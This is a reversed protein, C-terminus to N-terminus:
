KIPVFVVCVPSNVQVSRSTPTLRGSKSDVRFIRIDNSDQNEAFLWNGTPDLTFHRPEKGGTRVRDVLSLKGSKADIAFIAISDDGRNSAYLFKGATDTTIEATSNEGKFDQPLTSIPQLEAMRGSSDDFAYVTVTSSLENVLYVFKGNPALAFHRPGSGPAVKVAPPNAPSLAGTNADFRYVLLEDLGLDAVLVFKNNATAQIEHAHPGAQRDKNASSGTHQVFATRTGLTGDKQIPFVAISGGDYNAVLLYEGSRDVSLHAPGPGLSSVQQLPALKGSSRDISFTTVAGAQGGNFNNIENLAYLFKDDTAVALFSPNDTTAALGVDGLEGSSPDFRYAYIGKSGKDTYTGVYVLYRFDAACAVAALVSLLLVTSAVKYLRSHLPM